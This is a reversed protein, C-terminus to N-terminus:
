RRASAPQTQAEVPCRRGHEFCAVIMDGQALTWPVRRSYSRCAEDWSRNILPASADVTDLMRGDASLHEIRIERPTLLTSRRLRCIRGALRLEDGSKAVAPAGLSFFDSGRAQSVVAPPSAPAPAAAVGAVALAAAAALM